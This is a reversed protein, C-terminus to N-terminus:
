SFDKSSPCAGGVGKRGKPNVGVLTGRTIYRIRGRTEQGRGSSNMRVVVLKGGDLHMSWCVLSVGVVQNGLIIMM